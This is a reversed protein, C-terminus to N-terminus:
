ITWLSDQQNNELLWKLIPADIDQPYRSFYRPEINKYHHYKGKRFIVHDTRTLRVLGIKELSIETVAPLPIELTIKKAINRNVSDALVFISRDEVALLEGHVYWNEKLLVEVREGEAQNAIPLKTIDGGVRCASFLWVGLLLCMIYSRKM